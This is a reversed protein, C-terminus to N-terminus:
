NGNKKKKIILLQGICLFILLCNLLTGSFNVDLKDASAIPSDKQNNYVVKLARNVQNLLQDSIKGVYHRDPTLEM